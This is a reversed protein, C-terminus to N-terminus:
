MKKCATFNTEILSPQSSVSAGSILDCYTQIIMPQKIDHLTQSSHVCHSTKARICNKFTVITDRPSIPIASGARLCDYIDKM